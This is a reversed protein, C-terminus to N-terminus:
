LGSRGPSSSRISDQPPKTLGGGSSPKLALTHSSRSIVLIPKTLGEFCNVDLTKLKKIPWLRTSISATGDRVKDPTPIKIFWPELLRLYAKHSLLVQSSPADLQTHLMPYTYCQIDDNLIPRSCPMACPWSEGKVFYSLQHIKRLYKNHM